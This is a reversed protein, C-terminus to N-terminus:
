PDGQDRDLAAPALDIRALGFRGSSLAKEGAHLRDRFRQELDRARGLDQDVLHVAVATSPRSRGAGRRLRDGQHQDHAARDWNRQRVGRATGTAAVLKLVSGPAGKEWRCRKGVIPDVKAASSFAAASTARNSAAPYCSASSSIREISSCSPRPSKSRRSGGRLRDRRSHGGVVTLWPFVSSSATPWGELLRGPEVELFLLLRGGESRAIRVVNEM